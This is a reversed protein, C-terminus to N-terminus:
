RQLHASKNPNVRLNPTSLPSILTLALSPALTSNPNSHTLNSHDRPIFPYRKWVSDDINQGDSEDNFTVIMRVRNLSGGSRSHSSYVNSNPNQTGPDLRSRKSEREFPDSSDDALFLLASRLADKM